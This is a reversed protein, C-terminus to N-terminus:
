LSRREAALGEADFGSFRSPGVALGDLTLAFLEIRDLESFGHISKQHHHHTLEGNCRSPSGRDEICRTETRDNDQAGGASDAGAHGRAGDGSLSPVEPRSDHRTM